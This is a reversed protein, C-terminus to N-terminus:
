NEMNTKMIPLTFEPGYYEYFQNAPIQEDLEKNVILSTEYTWCRAVNRLTYGGGGLIILPRNYQKVFEVCAGHGRLTLNFCGLRDGALSDAGCQLVIAEPNYHTMVDGVIKKYISIFSDDDIADDLPVNLAYNM